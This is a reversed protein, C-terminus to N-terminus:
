LSFGIYLIIIAILTHIYIYIYRIRIHEIRLKEIRFLLKYYPQFRLDSPPIIYCVTHNSIAYCLSLIVLLRVSCCLICYDLPLPCSNRLEWSGDLISIRIM